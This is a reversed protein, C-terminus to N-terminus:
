RRAGRERRARHRLEVGALAEADTGAYAFHVDDFRVEGRVRGPDIPHEPVPTSIPTNLLSAIRRLGATSQQYTDFVQSLQQIPAFLQTLYLLFSVLVGIAVLHAHSTHVGTVSSRGVGLVILIAINGVLEAFSFYSAQLWQSRVGADRYGRVLVSFNETNQSERRFAQTVRVGSVNEDLDANVAAIRDRQRDYARRSKKQYIVTGVIFRRSSSSCSSRSAFIWPLLPDIAVGFFSM